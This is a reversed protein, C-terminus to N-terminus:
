ILLDRIVYPASCEWHCTPDDRKGKNTLRLARPMSNKNKIRKSLTTVSFLNSCFSRMIFLHYFSKFGPGRAVSVRLDGGRGTHYGLPVQQRVM